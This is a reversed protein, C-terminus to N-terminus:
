SNSEQQGPETESLRRRQSRNGLEDGQILQAFIDVLEHVKGRQNPTKAIMKRLIARVVGSQSEIARQITGYDIIYQRRMRHHIVFSPDTRSLLKSMTLGLAWVDGELSYPTTSFKNKLDMIEPALYSITGVMHDDSPLNSTAAGLDFLIAHVPSRSKLGINLPKIDRHMISHGHLWALGQMAQFSAILRSEHDFLDHSVVILQQFNEPLLPDLFIICEHQSRYVDVLNIMWPKM